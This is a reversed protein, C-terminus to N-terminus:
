QTAIIEACLQVCEDCIYSTPGAILRKVQHQQKECFACRVRRTPDVDDWVHGLAVDVAARFPTETDSADGNAYDSTHLWETHEVLVTEADRDITVRHGRTMGDKWVSLHTLRGATDFEALAGDAGRTEHFPLRLDARTPYEHM